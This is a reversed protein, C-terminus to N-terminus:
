KKREKRRGKTYKDIFPKVMDISQYMAELKLFKAFGLYLLTFVLFMIIANTYMGLPLIQGIFGALLFPGIAILLIPLLDLLQTRLKYGIHYSVLSANVIYILWSKMVMGILMGKIGWGLLGIVVFLIGLIQKFLSWKFFIKSKGIAAITQSNASQLCVALGALCLLQFYPISEIWKESYLLIFIPKALLILLFMLPFTIFAISSAIRKITTIMMERNDQLESYLPYSVQAVVQSITNSALMETSHAKSYYGMMAPNYIRGILLGQINNVFTSLLSTLLMYLGFNFLEKFSKISFVLRPYWKNTSWYVITPILALLLHQAVLSWVGWGIYALWITIFLSIVSSATLTIALKRFKFQKNLQNSQVTQLANIILVIGQVRLIDRLPPTRYFNAISPAALFLILYIVISLGLNWFFVTSYDEQTPRKKQILASGFGGDIFTASILMFISLMGICGYDEPELLRALVIGSIFSVFIQSFRQITTWMVGTVAKQKLVSNSM